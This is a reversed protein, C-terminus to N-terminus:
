DDYESALECGIVEELVKVKAISDIIGAKILENARIAITEKTSVPMKSVKNRIDDVSWNFVDNLNSPCLFDKYYNSIQLAEYIETVDVDVYEDSTDAIGNILIWNDELFKRQNSKMARIDSVYLSQVDGMNEWTYKDGTKHNIYILEGFRNSAVLLSVNDDLKLRKKEQTQPKIHTGKETETNVTINETAVKKPRGPKGNAM